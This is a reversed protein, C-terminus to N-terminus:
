SGGATYTLGLTFPLMTVANERSGPLSGTVRFEAEMGLGGLLRVQAGIGVDGGADTVLVDDYEVVQTPGDREGEEVKVGDVSTHVVGLGVLLYPDVRGLSVFFLRGEITGSYLTGDPSSFPTCTDSVGGCFRTVDGVDGRARLMQGRLRVGLNLYDSLPRVFGVAGYVTPGADLDVSPTRNEETLSGNPNKREMEVDSTPIAGGTGGDV